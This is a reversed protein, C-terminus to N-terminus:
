PMLLHTSRIRTGWGPDWHGAACRRGRRNEEEGRFGEGDGRTRRTGQGAQDLKRGVASKRDPGPLQSASVYLSVRQSIEHEPQKQSSGASAGLGPLGALVAPSLRRAPASSAGGGTAAAILKISEDVHIGSAPCCASRGAFCSCSKRDTAELACGAPHRPYPVIRDDQPGLGPGKKAGGRDV